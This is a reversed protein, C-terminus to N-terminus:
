KSEQKTVEYDGNRSEENKDNWEKKREGVVRRGGENHRGRM